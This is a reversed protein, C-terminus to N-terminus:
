KNSLLSENRLLLLREIKQTTILPYEKSFLVVDEEFNDYIKIDFTGTYYGALAQDILPLLLGARLENDDKRERNTAEIQGIYVITNPQIRFSANVPVTFNGCNGNVYYPLVFGIIKDIMYDGAAIQISILYENFEKSVKKYPLGIDYTYSESQEKGNTRITVRDAFPQCTPRYANSTRLTLLAISEKSIDLQTVKKNLAMNRNTVCGSLFIGIMIICILSLGVRKGRMINVVDRSSMVFGLQAVAARRSARRRSTRL